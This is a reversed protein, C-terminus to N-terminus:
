VLEAGSYTRRRMPGDASWLDECVEVGIVGFDFELVLDGFPVGATSTWCCRRGAPCPGGRTSSATPPCSRRRCWRGSRRGRGGGGRLQLAPGSPSSWGSWWCWRCSARHAGRVSVLEDWQREVFGQWQVLDEPPYGGIVQEPFLGVTVEDAAMAQAVSVVQDANADVAGVTSDINGLGIKILRM